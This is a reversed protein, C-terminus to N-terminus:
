GAAAEARTAGGGGGLERAANARAPRHATARASRSSAQGPSCAAALYRCRRPGAEEGRLWAARGLGWAAVRRPWMTWRPATRTTTSSASAACRAPWCRPATRPSPPPPSWTRTCHRWPWWARSPCRGCACRRPQTPPTPTHTHPPPVPAACRWPPSPLCLLAAGAGCWLCATGQGSRQWQWRGLARSARCCRQWVCEGGRLAAAPVKGGVWRGARGQLRVGGGAAAAAAGPRVKGDISGTVFKQASVPHFQVSTVFDTHWFVRLCEPASLHWLRV